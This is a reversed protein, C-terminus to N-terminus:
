LVRDLDICSEIEDNLGVYIIKGDAIAVAQSWSREEDVKYISSNKLILNAKIDMEKKEM